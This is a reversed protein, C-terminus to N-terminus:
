KLKVQRPLMPSCKCSWCIKLQWPVMSSCPKFIKNWMYSSSFPVFIWKCFKLFFFGKFACMLWMTSVTCSVPDGFWLCSTQKQKTIICQQHMCLRCWPLQCWSHRLRTNSSVMDAVVVAPCIGIVLYLVIELWKYRFSLAYSFERWVDVLIRCCLITQLVSRM